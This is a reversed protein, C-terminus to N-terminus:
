YVGRGYTDEPPPPETPTPEVYREFRGDLFEDLPRAWREGMEGDYAVLLEGGSLCRRWSSQLVRIVAGHSAATVSASMPLLHAVARLGAPPRLIYHYLLDGEVPNEHPAVVYAVSEAFYLGGSRRHRWM